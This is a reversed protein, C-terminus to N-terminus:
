ISSLLALLIAQNKENWAGDLRDPAFHRQFAKVVQKTGEAYVADAKIDYGFEALNKQLELVKDGRDGSRLVVKNSVDDSIVPFLGIGEEALMKWNFLEGPDEKRETAVDSHGIVNRNEIPHRTKIEKCLAILSEMQKETFPRYGFEHGPNVLEIGISFDNVRYKGRWNSIGAHWACYKEEVLKIVSGDEDIFYHASVKSSPLCLRKVAEDATQMGTYHIVITDIKVGSPRKDFNPSKVSNM